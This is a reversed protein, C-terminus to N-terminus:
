CFATPLQLTYLREICEKLAGHEVRCKYVTKKAGHEPTVRLLSWMSFLGNTGIVAVSHCIREHLLEGDRFWNVSILNPSFNNIRCNLRLEEGPVPSLPDPTIWLVEPPTGQLNIEYSLEEVNGFSSHHIQCTYIAGENDKTLTFETQSWVSYFNSECPFPGFQTVEEVPHGNRFWVLDINKPYFKEVVCTLILKEGQVPLQPSSFIYHTAPRATVYVVTTKRIPSKLTSHQISCEFEAGNDKITPTYTLCSSISYVRGNAELPQQAMSTIDERVDSLAIDERAPDETSAMHTHKRYWMVHITKPRFGNINCILRIKENVPILDPKIISSVQPEVKALRQQYFITVFISCLGTMMICAIAVGIIFGTDQHYPRLATVLLTTNRRLPKKLSEHQVECIYLSGNNTENVMQTVRSLVTFLGDFGHSSPVGTCIDSSLPAEHTSGHKRVLWSVNIRQPYFNRVHCSFTKEGEAATMVSQPSLQVTPQARVKLQINGNGYQPMVLITCTYIGEDMLTVNSLMLSAMGYPLFAPNVLSGQRYSSTYNGDFQFVPKDEGSVVKKMTWKVAVDEKKFSRQVTFNCHLVVDKYVLGIVPSPSIKVELADAAMLCLLLLLVEMTRDWECPSRSDLTTPTEKRGEKNMM